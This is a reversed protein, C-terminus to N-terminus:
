GSGHSNPVNAVIPGHRLDQDRAHGASTLRGGEGHKLSATVTYHVGVSRVPAHRGNVRLPGVVPDPPFVEHSAQEVLVPVTVEKDGAAGGVLPFEVSGEVVDHQQRGWAVDEQVADRSAGIVGIALARLLLSENKAVEALDFREKSPGTRGFDVGRGGRSSTTRLSSAM